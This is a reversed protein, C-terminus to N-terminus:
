KWNRKQKRDKNLLHHYSPSMGSPPKEKKIYSYETDDLMNIMYPKPEIRFGAGTFGFNMDNVVDTYKVDDWPSHKSKKPPTSMIIAKMGLRKMLKRGIYEDIVAREFKKLSIHFDEKSDLIHDVTETVLNQM